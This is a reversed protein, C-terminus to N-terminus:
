LFRERYVAFRENIQEVSTIRHFLGPDIIGLPRVFDAKQVDGCRM